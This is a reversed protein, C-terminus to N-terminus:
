EILASGVRYAAMFRDLGNSGGNVLRRARGLDGDMLADKIPKENDRIFLALLQAAIELDNALEPEEVLPIGLREGYRTYNDRGTLQIFGRGKFRAGDPPGNNGLKERNDYLDFPRGGPSTNYKSIGESVPLFSETEARITALSVLVMLRDQLEHEYLATRVAPLNAAINVIPTDPFMHSVVVVSPTGDDLAAATRPGVIGDAPLNRSTQFAAVAAQTASAFVGDVAGPDYGRALLRRQLEAVVVSDNREALPDLALPPRGTLIIQKPM